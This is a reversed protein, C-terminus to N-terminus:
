IIDEPRVKEKFIIEAELIKLNRLQQKRMKPRKFIYLDVAEWLFVWAIINLPEFLYLYDFSVKFLFPAFLRLAIFFAGVVVLRMITSLNTKMEEQVDIFEERYYNKIAKKYLEQEALSLNHGTIEFCLKEDSDVSMNKLYYNLLFATEDSICPVGDVSLPSLFYDVDNVHLRILRNGKEDTEYPEFTELKKSLERLKKSRKSM